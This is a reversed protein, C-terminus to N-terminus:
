ALNGQKFIGVARGELSKQNLAKTGKQL